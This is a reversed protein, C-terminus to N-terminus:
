DQNSKLMQLHWGHFSHASSEPLTDLCELLHWLTKSYKKMQISYGKSQMLELFATQIKAAEEPTKGVLLESM